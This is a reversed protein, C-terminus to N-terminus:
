RAKKAVGELWSKANQEECQIHGHSTAFELDIRPTKQYVDVTFAALTVSAACRVDLAVNVEQGALCM